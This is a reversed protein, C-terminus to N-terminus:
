FDCSFFYSFQFPFHQAERQLTFPLKSSIVWTLYTHHQQLLLPLLQHDEAHLTNCYIHSSCTLNLSRLYRTFAHLSWWKWLSSITPWLLILRRLFTPTSVPFRSVRSGVAREAAILWHMRNELRLHLFVYYLSWIGQLWFLGLCSHSVASSLMTILSQAKQFMGSFKLKLLVHFDVSRTTMVVGRWFHFSRSTWSVRRM